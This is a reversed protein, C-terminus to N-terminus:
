LALEAQAPREAFLGIDCRAQPCPPLIAGRGAQDRGAQAQVASAGCCPMIAQAPDDRITFIRVGAGPSRAKETVHAVMADQRAQPVGAATWMARLGAEAGSM